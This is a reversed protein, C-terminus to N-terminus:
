SVDSYSWTALTDAAIPLPSGLRYWRSTALACGGALSLLEIPATFRFEGWAKPDSRGPYHIRGVLTPLTLKDVYWDEVIPVVKDDLFPLTKSVAVSQLDLSLSRLARARASISRLSSNKEPEGYRLLVMAEHEM